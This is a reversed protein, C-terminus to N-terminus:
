RHAYPSPQRLCVQLFLQTVGRILVAPCWAAQDRGTHTYTTTLTHAGARQWLCFRCILLSVDAEAMVPLIVPNLVPADRGQSMWGHM